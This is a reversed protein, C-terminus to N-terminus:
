EDEMNVVLSQKIQHMLEFIEKEMRVIGEMLIEPSVHEISELKHPNKFDLNFNEDKVKQVPVTWSNETELRQAWLSICESFSENRIPNTKSFNKKGTPPQVEYYWINETKRYKEFFLINTAIPTYPAFSGPPLKVITHLNFNEVLEKKTNLYAQENTTFLVGEPFIIACRGKQKMSRMAHQLFLIETASAPYPFNSSVGKLQGSFPPNALVVNYRDKETLQFLNIGLTNAKTINPAEVGNLILNMMGLVYPLPKVEKGYLSREHLTEIDKGSKAKGKLLYFAEVLFGSPGNAPDYVTEGIDPDVMRTMFKGIARPTYFEALPKLDSAKMKSFLGEYIESIAFSEDDSFFNPDRIKEIAEKLLYGDQMLNVSNNFINAITQQTKNTKLGRLYPFLDNNEFDILNAGTLDKNYAWKSWTYDESINLKFEKAELECETKRKKETEEFVKLFLLWSFQQIYQLAGTTGPDQRMKNCAAWLNNVIPNSAM